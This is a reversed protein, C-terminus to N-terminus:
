PSIEKAAPAAPRAASQTLQEAQFRGALMPQLVQKEFRRTFTEAGSPTLHNSDSFDEDPHWDRADIVRVDFDGRLGTLYRDVEHSVASPYWSRFDSTEPMIVLAVKIKQERCLQLLEQFCADASPSICPYELMKRFMAEQQQLRRQFRSPDHDKFDEVWLWGWEDIYRYRWDTQLAAPLWSSDWANMIKFRHAFVPCAQEVYWQRYVQDRGAVHRRLIPFDRYQFRKIDTQLYAEFIQQFGQSAHLPWFEVFLLDPRVGDDLLRRLTILEIIPCGGTIGYNMVVPQRGESLRYQKMVDPRVGMAVRSSGLLLVLPQDPSRRALHTRLHALRRGYEPDRLDQRWYRLTALFALQGGLFFVLGWILAHKGHAGLAPRRSTKSDDM